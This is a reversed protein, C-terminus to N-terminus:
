IVRSNVLEGVEMCMHYLVLCATHNFLRNRKWNFVVNGDEHEHTVTKFVLDSHYPLFTPLLCLCYPLAVPLGKYNQTIITAFSSSIVEAAITQQNGPVKKSRLAM